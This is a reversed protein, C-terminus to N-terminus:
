GASSGTASTRACGIQCIGYDLNSNEARMMRTPAPYSLHSSSRTLGAQVCCCYRSTSVMPPHLIGQHKAAGRDILPVFDGRFPPSPSIPPSIALLSSTHDFQGYDPPPSEPSMLMSSSGSQTHVILAQRRPASQPASSKSVMSNPMSSSGSQTHVISAQRSLAPSNSVTRYWDPKLGAPKNRLTPRVDELAAYGRTRKVARTCVSHPTFNFDYANFLKGHTLSLARQPVNGVLPFSSTTTTTTTMTTLRQRFM